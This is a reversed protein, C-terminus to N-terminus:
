RGDKVKSFGGLSPRQSTSSGAMSSSGGGRAPRDSSGPLGTYARVESTEPPTVAVSPHTRPMPPPGPPPAAYGAPVAAGSPIVYPEPRSYSRSRDYRNSLASRQQASWTSSPPPLNMPPSSHGHRESQLGHAPLAAYEHANPLSTAASPDNLRVSAVRRVMSHMALRDIGAAPRVPRNATSSSASAARPRNQEWGPLLTASGASASASAPRGAFSSLPPLTREHPHPQPPLQPGHRHQHGSGHEFHRSGSPAPTRYVPEEEGYRPAYAPHPRHASAPVASSSPGPSRARSPSENDSARPHGIRAPDGESSSLINHPFRSM